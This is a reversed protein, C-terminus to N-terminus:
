LGFLDTKIIFGIFFVAAISLLIMLLRLNASRKSQLHDQEAKDNM